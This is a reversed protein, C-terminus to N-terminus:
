PSTYTFSAKEAACRSCAEVATIARKKGLSLINPYKICFSISLKFLTINFGLCGKVAIKPPEFIDVFISIILLKSEFTSLIIKPPPM